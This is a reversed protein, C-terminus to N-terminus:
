GAGRIVGSGRRGLGSGLVELGHVLTWDFFLFFVRSFRSKFGLCPLFEDGINCFSCGTFFTELFKVGTVGKDLM